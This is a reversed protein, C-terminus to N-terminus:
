LNFWSWFDATHRVSLVSKHGMRGSEFPANGSFAFNANEVVDWTIAKDVAHIEDVREHVLVSTIFSLLILVAFPMQVCAQMQDVEESLYEKVSGRLTEGALVAEETPTGHSLMDNKINNGMKSIMAELHNAKHLPTNCFVQVFENFCLSGTDDKDYQHILKEMDEEYLPQEYCEQLCRKLEEGNVYGSGDADAKQFSEKCKQLEEVTIGLEEAFEATVEINLPVDAEPVWETDDDEEPISHGGKKPERTGGRSRGAKVM